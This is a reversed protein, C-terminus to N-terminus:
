VELWSWIRGCHIDSITAAHVGFRRALSRGTERGRLRKIEVVQESLLKSAGHREGRNHTGHILRDAMNGTHTDWRIHVPNVCALHGKGCNHAAEHLPTPPEGHALKCILRSAPMERGQYKIRGEGNGYTGFPWTLCEQGQHSVHDLLFQLPAGHMTGGGCPDGHRQWRRYHARCWGRFLIPKGCDDVSCVSKAAM